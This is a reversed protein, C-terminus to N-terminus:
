AGYRPRPPTWWCVITRRLDSSCSAMFRGRENPRKGVRSSMTVYANLTQDFPNGYGGGSNDIGRVWEGPNLDFQVINPLKEAVGARNIKYTEAPIGDKGGRVGRPPFVQGDCAIAVTMLDKKPGYLIENAPAGRFKGAGGSGAIIRLSKIEM